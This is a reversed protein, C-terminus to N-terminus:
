RAVSSALAQPAYKSFAEVAELQNLVAAANPYNKASVDVFLAGAAHGALAIDALGPAESFCYTSTVARAALRAEMAGFGEEFWHRTWAQISADNAGMKSGLWHRVRTTQLPHADAISILAFSRVAARAAPDAPLLPPLRHCEELYEIIALSQTFSAAGDFLVPVASQPNHKPFDGSFQEGAILDVSVDEWELGKLSLAIRVRYTAASRWYGYLKFDNEM